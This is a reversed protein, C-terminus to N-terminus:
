PCWWSIVMQDRTFIFVCISHDHKRENILFSALFVRMNMIRHYGHDTVHGCKQIFVDMSTRNSSLTVDLYFRGDLRFTRGDLLFSALFVEM